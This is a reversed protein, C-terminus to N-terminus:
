YFIALKPLFNNQADRTLPNFHPWLHLRYTCIIHKELRHCSVLKNFYFNDCDMLYKLIITIFKVWVGIFGKINFNHM